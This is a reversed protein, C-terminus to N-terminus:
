TIPLQAVGNGFRKLSQFSRLSIRIIQIIKVVHADCAREVDTQLKPLLFAHFFTVPGADYKGDISFFYPFGM